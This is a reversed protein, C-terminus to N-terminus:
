QNKKLSNGLLQDLHSQFLTYHSLNKHGGGEITVFLHDKELMKQLPLTTQYPIIIDKTGHFAAIPVQIKPIYSMTNFGYRIYNSPSPLGIFYYDLVEKISTYPTELLLMRSPVKSALDAAIGTGLSRGYIIISDSSESELCWNYAMLADSYYKEEDIDGKSKGFGRYDIAFFDYGRDTFDHHYRGWRQLNDANGHFYLVLGKKQYPTKIKIANIEQGDKAKLWIEEHPSDFHFPFDAPLKKPWFLLQKQLVILLIYSLVYVVVFGIAARKIAIKWAM